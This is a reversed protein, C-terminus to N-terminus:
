DHLERAIPPGVSFGSFMVEFGERQPSCCMMGVNVSRSVPFHALRVPKWRGDAAELYQVRIAEAHRTLRIRVGDPDTPISVLSWDSADNTVVVSFYALGDTYEIGAKIWHTESLRLMLGAQDYLAKYEGKVTVEASFDGAVPRYLFHGNDRRFGYFTERWFDTEKGTRVHLTGDGFVHHPPPNLWAMGAFDSTM